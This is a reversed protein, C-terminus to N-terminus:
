SIDQLYNYDLCYLTEHYEMKKIKSTHAHDYKRQISLKYYFHSLSHTLSHPLSLSPPLYLSLTGLDLELLQYFEIVLIV